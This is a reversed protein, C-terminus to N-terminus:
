QVFQQVGKVRKLQRIAGFVGVDGLEVVVGHALPDIGGALREHPILDLKKGNGSTKIEPTM